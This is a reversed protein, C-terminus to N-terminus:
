PSCSHPWIWLTVLLEWLLVADGQGVRGGAFLQHARCPSPKELFGSTEPSSSMMVLSQKRCENNRSQSYGDTLVHPQPVVVM